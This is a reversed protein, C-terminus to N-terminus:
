FKASLITTHTLRQALDAYQELKSLVEQPSGSQLEFVIRDVGADEYRKLSDL